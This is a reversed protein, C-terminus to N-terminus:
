IAHCKDNYITIEKIHLLKNTQLKDRHDIWWVLKGQYSVLSWWNRQLHVVVLGMWNRIESDVTVFLHGNFKIDSILQWRSMFGWAFLRCLIKFVVGISETNLWGSPYKKKFSLVIFHKICLSKISEALFNNLAKNQCLNYM